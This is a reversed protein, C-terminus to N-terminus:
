FHYTRVCLFFHKGLGSDSSEQRSHLDAQNTHGLFPDTVSTMENTQAIQLDSEPHM